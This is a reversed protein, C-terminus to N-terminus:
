DEVYVAKRMASCMSQGVGLCDFCMPMEGDVAGIGHRKIPHGCDNCDPNGEGIPLVVTMKVIQQKM